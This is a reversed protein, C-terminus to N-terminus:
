RPHGGEKSAGIRARPMGSEERRRASTTSTPVRETGEERGQSREANGDATGVELVLWRAAGVDADVDVRGPANGVSISGRRRQEAMGLIRSGSVTPGFQVVALLRHDEYLIQSLLVEDTSVFKGTVRLVLVHDRLTSALVPTPGEEREFLADVEAPKLPERRLRVGPGAPGAALPPRLLSSAEVRFRDAVVHNDAM